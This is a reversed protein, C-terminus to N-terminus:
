ELFEPIPAAPVDMADLRAREFMEGMAVVIKRPGEFPDRAHAALMNDLMVVDGQEWDFRVACDEYARGIIDMTESDIPMGDGYYVHRPMRELGVMSLLDERVEPELCHVHHLQVQNFFAREGTVPHRIVAPCRTRTQLNDGDLWNWDTGVAALRQEVEARVDTKFFDQWSVDLRRTFTRVYLLQQRELKDVLAPPLRRLMERCDVIPTAGGVPSPLECFFWQKRPWRDLHASENHFLIMEREPYPTSRYTNRGGEKKPLDGYGGYLQPEITEAFAEFDQPTRLGFNRFLIGGHRRLATEIFDKQERAWAVADLGAGSPQMVIPFQRQPSLFSTLVRADPTRHKQQPAEMITTLKKLKDLKGAKFMPTPSIPETRMPLEQIPPIVFNELLTQPAAAIQQLLDRWAAAAREITGRRYLDGPFVWDARLGEPVESVFVALEFKTHISARPIREIQLGPLHFRSEPVNQMVFLMQVLPMHQRNRAVGSVEVIHDFPMEQHELADFVATQTCSLWQLFDMGKGLRSRLPLVNVFFGMLGELAPHNRGAVDTGIVLDESQSQRHVLLEFAALLLTFLSVGQVRALGALADALGRPVSLELVEGEGSASPSSPRDAPLSSRAPAGALYSQWFATDAALTEDLRRAHWQAYDAYQISLPPLIPQDAPVAQAQFAAYLAVFDKTFIAESWGDFAIHHVSLLLVHQTASLRLVAARLVPGSALDFVQGAHAQVAAQVREEQRAVANGSLDVLPVDVALQEAIVAVPEGDEDEPYSTRLIEHRVVLAGFAARLADLDIAGDLRLAGSMNYAARDRADSSHVLRDVAWLRRQASSLSMTASRPVPLLSGAESRQEPRALMDSVCASLDRLAPLEFVKRLKLDIVFAAQLRAVMQAALLSHGGLEFFNDGRGVREVGLVEAWIGALAEEV